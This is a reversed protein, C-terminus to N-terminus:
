LEPIAGRRVARVVAVSGSALLVFPMGMMLYISYSFGEALRSAEPGKKAAVADKCRPCAMAEAAVFFVGLWTLLQVTRRM